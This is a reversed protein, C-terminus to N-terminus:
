DAKAVSGTEIASVQGDMERLAEMDGDGFQLAHVLFSEGQTEVTVTGPTLTISNAFVVQALDTKQTIPVWVLKQMDAKCGSLIVKSVTWNSKAIEILLWILYKATGTVSISYDLVEGDAMDMRRAIWIVLFISLVGFALILPKDWLGSMLLWMTALGSAGIITRVM